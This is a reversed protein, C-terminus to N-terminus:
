QPVMSPNGAKCNIQWWSRPCTGPSGPIGPSCSVQDSVQSCPVYVFVCVRVCVHHNVSIVQTNGAMQNLSCPGPDANQMSRDQGRGDCRVRGEGKM